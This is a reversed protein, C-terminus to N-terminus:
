AHPLVQAKWAGEDPQDSHSLNQLSLFFAGLKLNLFFKGSKSLLLETAKCSLLPHLVM